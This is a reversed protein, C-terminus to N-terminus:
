FLCLCSDGGKCLRGFQGLSRTAQFLFICMYPCLDMKVSQKLHVSYGGM